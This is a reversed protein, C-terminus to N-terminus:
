GTPSCKRVGVGLQADDLVESVLEAIELQSGLLEFEDLAGKGGELVQPDHGCGLPWVSEERHADGLARVVEVEQQGQLVLAGGDSELQDQLADWGVHPHHDRGEHTARDPRFDAPSGDVSGDQPRVSVLVPCRVARTGGELGPVRRPASADRGARHACPPRGDPDRDTLAVLERLSKGDHYGMEVM